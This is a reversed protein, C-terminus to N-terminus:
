QIKESPKKPPKALIGWTYFHLDRVAGEFRLELEKFSDWATKRIDAAVTERIVRFGNNSITSRIKRRIGSSVKV